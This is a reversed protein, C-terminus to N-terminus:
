GGFLDTMGAAGLGAVIMPIVGILVFAPLMCLGLPAAARTSVSRARGESEARRTRRLDGALHRLAPALSAGSETARALARGVPGWQPDTALDRWVEVPEAGLALRRGLVSLDDEVVGGWARGVQALAREPAAGAALGAAVLDVVAPLAAVLEERRRRASPLEASRIVRTLVVATVTGALAGPVGGVLLYVGVGGGAAWLPATRHLRDGEDSRGSGGSGTAGARGPLTGGPVRRTAPLLLAIGVALLAAVLPVAGSTM